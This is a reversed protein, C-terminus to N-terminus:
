TKFPRTPPMQGPCPHFYPILLGNGQDQRYLGHHNPGSCHHYQPQTESVPGVPNGSPKFGPHSLFFIAIAGTEYITYLGFDKCLGRLDEAIYGWPRESNM